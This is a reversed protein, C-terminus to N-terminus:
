PQLPPNDATQVSSLVQEYWPVDAAEDAADGGDPSPVAIYLREGVRVMGLRARAQAAVYEMDDWRAVRATLEEIRERQARQHAEMRSIEAQQAFYIRLRDAYALTLVLLLAGLFAARGSVRVRERPAFVRRAPAMM